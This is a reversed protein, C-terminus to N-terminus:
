GSAGSEIRALLPANLVKLFSGPPESTVAYENNALWIAAWTGFDDDRVVQEPDRSDTLDEGPTFARADGRVAFWTAFALEMEWTTRLWDALGNVAHVARDAPTDGALHMSTLRAIREGPADWPFSDRDGHLDLDVWALGGDAALLTDPPAVALAGRGPADARFARLEIREPTMTTPDLTRTVALVLDGLGDIRAAHYHTLPTTRAAGSAVGSAAGASPIVAADTSPLRESSREGGGGSTRARKRRKASSTAM